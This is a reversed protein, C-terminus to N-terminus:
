FCLRQQLFVVLLRCLGKCTSCLVTSYETQMLLARVMAGLIAWSQTGKFYGGPRVGDM